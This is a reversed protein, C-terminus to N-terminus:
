CVCLNFVFLFLFVLSIQSFPANRIEDQVPTKEVYFVFGQFRLPFSQQVDGRYM